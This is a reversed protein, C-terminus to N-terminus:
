RSWRWPRWLPAILASCVGRMGLRIGRIVNEEDQQISLYGHVTMTLAVTLVILLIIKTGLKM